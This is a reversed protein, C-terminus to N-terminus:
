KYTSTLNINTYAATVKKSHLFQKGVFNDDFFVRDDKSTDAL